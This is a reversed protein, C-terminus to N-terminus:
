FEPPTGDPALMPTGFTQSLALWTLRPLPRYTRYVEDEGISNAPLVLCRLRGGGDLICSRSRLRSLSEVILTFRPGQPPPQLPSRPRRGQARGRPLLRTQDRAAVRRRHTTAAGQDAPMAPRVPHLPTHAPAPSRRPGSRESPECGDLRSPTSIIV